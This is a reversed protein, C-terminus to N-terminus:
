GRNIRAEISLTAQKNNGPASGHRAAGSQTVGAGNASMASNAASCDGLGAANKQVTGVSM